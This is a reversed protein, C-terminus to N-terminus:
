KDDVAGGLATQTDEVASRGPVDDPLDALAREIFAQADQVADSDIRVDATADALQERCAELEAELRDREAHLEEIREELTEIRAKVPSHSTETDPDDALEYLGPAIRSVHNHERMRKLRDSAYPRSVDIEDALYQPTVRGLRLETLIRRDTDNLDAPSLTVM